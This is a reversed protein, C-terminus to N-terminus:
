PDEVGEEWAAPNALIYERIRGLDEEDRIVHEYYNRQWVPSRPTGRWRNIRRASLSKYNQIIAALSQPTTGRPRSMHLPSANPPLAKEKPEPRSGFAEGRRIEIIGHIHDPMVIWADLGVGPFHRPIALWCGAAIWGLRTHRVNGQHVEGLLPLRNRTCLTIFYAGTQAYDYGPLRISRRGFTDM